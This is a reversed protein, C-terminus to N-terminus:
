LYAKSAETLESYVNKLICAQRKLYEADKKACLLFDINELLEKPCYKLQSLMKETKKDGTFYVENLAFIVQIMDMLTHVVIPSTFLTDKRETASIYHFNDIWTGARMLFTSIISKKLKQPYKEIRRKNNELWKQEDCIPKIFDIESLYIYSYYGNSTWTQPIIDFDGNLSRAIVEQTKSKLRVVVEVPIGNYKFDASGGWPFNFDESVFCSGAEDSFSEILAKRESYPKPNDGFVFIDIDSKDDAVGKAHAGALAIVPTDYFLLKLKESIENIIVDTNM